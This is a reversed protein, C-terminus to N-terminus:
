DTCCQCTRRLIGCIAPLQISRYDLLSPSAPGPHLLSSLNGAVQNIRKGRQVVLSCGSYEGSSRREMSRGSRKSQSSGSRHRRIRYVPEQCLTCKGGQEAIKRNMLKRMESPSRLERYGRPHHPDDIRQVGTRIFRPKALGQERGCCTRSRHVPCFENKRLRM